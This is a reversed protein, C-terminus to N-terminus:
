ENEEENAPAAIRERCEENVCVHYNEGKRGRKFGMYGGCKPCKQEVPMEWSVFECEPYRECGYFKRGKRSTKELLKAGCAPCPAAIEM